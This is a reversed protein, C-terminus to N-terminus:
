PSPAAGQVFVIYMAPESEPTSPLSAESNAGLTLAEEAAVRYQFVTMKRGSVELRHETSRFKNTLWPPRPVGDDHAIFV